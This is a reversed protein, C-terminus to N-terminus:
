HEPVTDYGYLEFSGTMLIEAEGCYWFCTSLLDEQDYQIVDHM